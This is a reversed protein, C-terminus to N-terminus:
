AVPGGSLVFRVIVVLLGGALFFRILEDLHRHNTLRSAAPTQSGRLPEPKPRGQLM